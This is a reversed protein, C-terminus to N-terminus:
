AGGIFPTMAIATIPCTPVLRGLRLGRGHPSVKAERMAVKALGGHRYEVFALTVSFAITSTTGVDIKARLYPRTRRTTELRPEDVTFRSIGPTLVAEGMGPLRVHGGIPAVATIVQDIVVFRRPDLNRALSTSRPVVLRYPVATMLGAGGERATSTRPRRLSALRRTTTVM